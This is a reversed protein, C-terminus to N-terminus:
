LPQHFERAIERPPYLGDATRASRDNAFQALAAQLRTAFLTAVTLDASTGPNIGRQKLTADFARLVPLAANAPGTAFTAAVTTAESRVADAVAPGHKRAIHTDAFRTLWGLFIAVTVAEEDAHRHRAATALPMGFDFIDAFGNVYQSAIQDVAAAERMAALLTVQPEAHVDHRASNGLGGPAALRIAAYAQRADDVTLGALVLQLRARLDFVPTTALAAEVLPALLLVIGLNTNCGAVARTAAVADFIREGVAAGPRCLPAAMAAASCVFLEATMGHGPSAVSVNGPKFARVELECVERVLDALQTALLSSTPAMTNM